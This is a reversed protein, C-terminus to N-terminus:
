GVDIDPLYLKLESDILASRLLNKVNFERFRPVSVQCVQKNKLVFKRGALIDKLFSMPCEDFTPM